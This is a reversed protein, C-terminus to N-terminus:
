FNDPLMILKNSLFTKLVVEYSEVMPTYTCKPKSPRKAKNFYQPKSTKKKIAKSLNFASEKTKPADVVGDNVVYM